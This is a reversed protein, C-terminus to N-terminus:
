DGFLRQWLGRKRKEKFDDSANVTIKYTMQESPPYKTRFEAFQEEAKSRLSSITPEIFKVIADVVQVVQDWNTLNREWGYGPFRCIVDGTPNQHTITRLGETHEQLYESIGKFGFPAPRLRLVLQKKTLDLSLFLIPAPAFAASWKVPNGQPLIYTRGRSRDNWTQWNRKELYPWLSDHVYLRAATESRRQHEVTAKMEAATASLEPPMAAADAAPAELKEPSLLSERLGPDRALDWVGVELDYRSLVFSLAADLDAANGPLGRDMFYTIRFDASMVMPKNHTFAEM